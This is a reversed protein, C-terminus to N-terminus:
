ELAKADTNAGGYVALEVAEFRSENARCLSSLMPRSGFSLGMCGLTLSCSTRLNFVPQGLLHVRSLRIDFVPQALLHFRRAGFGFTPQALLDLLSARRCDGLGLRRCTCFSLPRSGAFGLGSGRIRGGSASGLTIRPQGCHFAQKRGDTADIGGCGKALRKVRQDVRSRELCRPHGHKQNFSVGHTGERIAAKVVNWRRTRDGDTPDYLGADLV